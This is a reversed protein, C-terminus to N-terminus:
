LASNQLVTINPDCAKQYQDLKAILREEFLTLANEIAQSAPKPKFWPAKIKIYLKPNFDPDKPPDETKLYHKVYAL